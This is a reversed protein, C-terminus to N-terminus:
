WACMEPIPVPKDGNVIYHLPVTEGWGLPLPYDPAGYTLGDAPIGKDKMAALLQEAQAREGAWRTHSVINGFISSHSLDHFLGDFRDHLYVNYATALSYGHPTLLIILDTKRGAVAAGAREMAEHLPRFAETYPRDTGPIIDSGHPLMLISSLM